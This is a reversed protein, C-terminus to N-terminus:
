ERGPQIREVGFSSIDSPILDNLVTVGLVAHSRTLIRDHCSERHEAPYRFRSQIQERSEAESGDEFPKGAQQPPDSQSRLNRLRGSRITVSYRM